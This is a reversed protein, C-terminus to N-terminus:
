VFPTNIPKVSEVAQGAASVDGTCVVRFQHKSSVTTVPFVCKWIGTSPNTVEPDDQDYSVSGGAYTMTFTITTPDALDGAADRCTATAVPQDGIELDVM